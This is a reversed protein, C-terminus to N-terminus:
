SGNALAQVFGPDDEFKVKFFLFQRRAEEWDGVSFTKLRGGKVQPSPLQQLSGAEVGAATAVLRKENRM